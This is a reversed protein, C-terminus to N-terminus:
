AAGALVPVPPEPERYTTCGCAPRVCRTDALHEMRDHGCRCRVLRTIVLTLAGQPTGKPARAVKHGPFMHPGSVHMHDDDPVVQADVLAGDVAAKFSPYWNAPDFRRNATPHYYGLVMAAPLGPIRADWAAQRAAERIDKTRRAQPMRHLRQNSSLWELADLTITWSPIM